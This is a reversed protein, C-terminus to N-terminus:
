RASALSGPRSASSRARRAPFSPLEDTNEDNRARRQRIPTRRDKERLREIVKPCISSVPVTDGMEALRTWRFEESARSAAQPAEVLVPSLRIRRFTISHEVSRLTERTTVACGLRAGLASRIAEAAPEETSADTITALPFAWMGSLFGFEVPRELLYRGRRRVIAVALEVRETARRPPLEPFRDQDGKRRAECDAAIPCADCSPRSPTCITAGLEMMAQNFDGAHQPPLWSGTLERIRRAITSRKPNGEIRRLRTVVREVNGDVVPHPLGYAISLIAAATYAGIGPLALAEDLDRPFRGAHDELVRRAGAHLSRARRYYGLGSWQAVVDEEDAEALRELSPFRAIFRHFHPVVTEVRTQQLMVESLWVRYPDRSARWPLDRKVTRYWGLLRAALARSGRQRSAPVDPM